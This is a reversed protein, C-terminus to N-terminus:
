NQEDSVKRSICQMVEMTSITQSRFLDKFYELVLDHLGDKPTVWQEEENQLMKISKKKRRGNAFKYFAM